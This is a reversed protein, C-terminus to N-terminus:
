LGKLFDQLGREMSWSSRGLANLARTTDAQSHRIDGPRSPAFNIKGTWGPFYVRVMSILEKLSVQRGSGINLVTNEERPFDKQLVRVVMDAVDKVYVFDRSQEGDGFITFSKNKRMADILLSIVGSYSSGAPQRPGFVNFFRLSVASFGLHRCFLDLYMESSLKQLGYPSLPAPQVTESIPLVQQDGYVSASSAFVIQPIHKARCLEIVALTSSLNAQHVACPDEWSDSVSPRAALHIVGDVRSPLEDPRCSMVDKVIVHLNDRISLNEMSGGSLDDIIYVHAQQKILADVIHSGIFGAGGTVVYNKM